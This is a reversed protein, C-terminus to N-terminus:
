FPPFQAPFHRVADNTRNSGEFAVTDLTANDPLTSSFAAVAADKIHAVAAVHANFGERVAATVDAFVADWRQARRVM